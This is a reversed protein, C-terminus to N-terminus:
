KDRSARARHIQVYFIWGVILAMNALCNWIAIHAAWQPQGQHALRWFVIGLSLAALFVAFGLFAILPKILARQFQLRNHM